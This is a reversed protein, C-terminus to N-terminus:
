GTSRGGRPVGRPDRRAHREGEIYEWDDPLGHEEVHKAALMDPWTITDRGDGIAHILAENM